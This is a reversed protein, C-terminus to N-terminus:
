TALSHLLWIIPGRHLPGMKCLQLDSSFFLISVLFLMFVLLLQYLVSLSLIARWFPISPRVFPGDRFQLMGIFVFCCISALIGLKVSNETDEHNTRIGAYFLWALLIVLATLTHPHVICCFSGYYTLSRSHNHWSKWKCLEDPSDTHRLQLSRRSSSQAQEPTPDAM